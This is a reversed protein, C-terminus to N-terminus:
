FYGSWSGNNFSFLFGANNKSHISSEECNPVGSLSEMWPRAKIAMVPLTKNDKNETGSRESFCCVNQGFYDLRRHAIISRLRTIFTIAWCIICLVPMILTNSSTPLFSLEKYLYRKTMIYLNQFRLYRLRNCFCIEYYM